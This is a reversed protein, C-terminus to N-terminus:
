GNLLGRRICENCRWLGSTGPACLKAKSFLTIRANMRHERSGPKLAHLQLSSALGDALVILLGRTSCERVNGVSM